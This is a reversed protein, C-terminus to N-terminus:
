FISSPAFGKGRLDAIREEIAGLMHQLGILAAHLFEPDHKQTQPM